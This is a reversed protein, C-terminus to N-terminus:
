ACVYWVCACVHVCECVCVDQPSVWPAPPPGHGMGEGYWRRTNLMSGIRQEFVKAMCPEGDPLLFEYVYKSMDVADATDQIRKLTEPDAPM